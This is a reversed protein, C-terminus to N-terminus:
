SNFSIGWSQDPAAVAAKVPMDAALAEGTVGCAVAIAAVAIWRM